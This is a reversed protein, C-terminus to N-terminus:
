KASLKVKFFIQCLRSPLICHLSCIVLGFLVSSIASYSILDSNETINAYISLPLTTLLSLIISLYASRASLKNSFTCFIVPFFAASSLNGYILSLWILKPQLLALGTGFITFALMFYRSVNLISITSEGQRIYRKYIDIAGLSSIACFSSDLTSCLGCLAMGTFLILAWHPLYHAIVAPAVMEPNIININPNAAAIFGPICLLIPVIGFILGGAIFTKSIDEKRVAFARQFFMQDSLPGSILGITMPIGFTFAIHSNFISTFEGTKGGLGHTLNEIGGSTGLVWPIICGAVILLFLMQFVDTQVSAKMGTKISYTLAILPMVLIAIRVDIGSLQNLLLGGALSNIIISGLQYGLFITLFSLHAIKNGCFKYSIFDPLSYGQPCSKRIKIAIPAFIFFCLINPFIFWFAGAIGKTYSQLSAIFIAPAWVWSVAISLAAKKWGLTRNAVLYDEATPTHYNSLRVILIMAIAFTVIILSIENISCYYNM